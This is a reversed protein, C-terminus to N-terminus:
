PAPQYRVGPRLSPAGFLSATGTGKDHADTRCPCPPQVPHCPLPRPSTSPLDLPPRSASAFPPPHTIPARTLDDGAPALFPSTTTKATLAVTSYSAHHVGASSSKGVAPGAPGAIGKRARKHLNAESGWGEGMRATFTEAQGTRHSLADEVNDEERRIPPSPAATFLHICLAVGSCVSCASCVLALVESGLV